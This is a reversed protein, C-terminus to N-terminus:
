KPGEFGSAALLHSPMEIPGAISNRVPVVALEGSERATHFVSEFDRCELLEISNGLMSRAAEHSYSGRIGMIVVKMM